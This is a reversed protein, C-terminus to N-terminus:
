LVTANPAASVFADRLFREDARDASLDFAPWAMRGYVLAPIVLVAGVLGVRGVLLAPLAALTGIWLAMVVYTPILYDAIVPARYSLSIALNIAAVGGTLLFWRPRTLLTALCGLLALALGLPEFNTLLIQRGLELRPE